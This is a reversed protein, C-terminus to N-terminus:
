YGFDRTRKEIIARLVAEDRRGEVILLLDAPM